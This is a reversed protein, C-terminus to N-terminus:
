WDIPKQGLQELAANIHRFFGHANWQRSPVAYCAAAPHEYEFKLHPNRVIHAYKKAENGLFVFVKPNEDWALLDIVKSIFPQWIKVHGVPDKHAVTLSSNILLVGEHCWRVLSGEMLDTAFSTPYDEEYVELVKKWSPCLYKVRSCDFAIGNAEGPSNYPSLGLHVVKVQSFPTERFARFVDDSSPYVMKKNREEAIEGAMKQFWPKDIDAELKSFWEDGLTEKLFEKM